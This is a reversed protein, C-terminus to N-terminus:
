RRRSIFHLFCVTGASWCVAAIIQYMFIPPILDESRVYGLKKILLTGVEEDLMEENMWAGFVEASVAAFKRGNPTVLGSDRFNSMIIIRYAHVYDCQYIYSLVTASIPLLFSKSIFSKKWEKHVAGIVCPRISFIELDGLFDLTYKDVIGFIGSLKKVEVISLRWRPWIAIWGEIAAYDTSVASNKVIFSPPILKGSKQDISIFRM